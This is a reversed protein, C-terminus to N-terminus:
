RAAVNIWGFVLMSIQCTSSRIISRKGSEIDILEVTGFDSPCRGHLRSALISRSDPSWIVESPPLTRRKELTAPDILVTHDGNDGLAAIWRGDPSWATDYFGEGLSQVIQTDTDILELRHKRVAVIKRSDPSLSISTWSSVYKCDSNSLIKHVRGSALILEYLGCESVFGSTLYGGSVVVKTSSAAIGYVSALGISGALRTARIPGLEIRYLGTNPGSPDFFRAGYLVKGDPSVAVKGLQFPLALTFPPGDAPFVHLSPADARRPGGPDYFAPAFIGPEDSLLPAVCQVRLM